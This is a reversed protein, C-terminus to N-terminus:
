ITKGALFFKQLSLRVSFNKIKKEGYTIYVNSNVNQIGVKAQQNNVETM